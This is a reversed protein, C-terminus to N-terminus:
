HLVIQKAAQQLRRARSYYGLGTWAKLVTATPAAALATVTPFQAMFRKYYHLVTQVQTQQLMYESVLVHYPHTDQRWPLDRATHDYWDLLATQFDAIKTPPWDMLKNNTNNSFLKGTLLIIQFLLDFRNFALRDRHLFLLFIHGVITRM